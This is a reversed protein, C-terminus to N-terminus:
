SRHRWHVAGDLKMQALAMEPGTQVVCGRAQAFTLLPTMVPATVVDAVYTTAELTDLLTQPLPLADFGSMGAPSGNVWCIM